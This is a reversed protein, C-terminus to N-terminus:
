PLPGALAPTLGCGDPSPQHLEAHDSEAAHAAVDNPAQRAASVL